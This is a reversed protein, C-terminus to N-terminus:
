KVPPAAVMKLAKQEAVEVATVAAVAAVTIITAVTELVAVKTPSASCAPKSNGNGGGGGVQLETTMNPSRRRKLGPSPTPGASSVTFFKIGREDTLPIRPGFLVADMAYKRWWESQRAMNPLPLCTCIEDFSPLRCEDGSHGARGCNYCFAKRKVPLAKESTNDEKKVKPSSSRKTSGDGNASGNDGEDSDDLDIVHVPAIKRTSAGTGKRTGVPEPSSGMNRVFRTWSVTKARTEEQILRELKEAAGEAIVTDPRGKEEREEKRDAVSAM